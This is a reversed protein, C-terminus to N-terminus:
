TPKECVYIVDQCLLEGLGCLGVFWDITTSAWAPLLMFREHFPLAGLSIVTLMRLGSNRILERAEKRTMSTRRRRLLRALVYFGNSANKHNNFILIGNRSLLASLTRMAELRLTPEANPFFRFATVFDFREQAFVNNRTIDANVIRANTARRRCVDLMSDSIDVGTSVAGLDSFLQLLRGTGCAFDLHTVRPQIM